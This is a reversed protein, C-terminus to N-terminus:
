PEFDIVAKFEAETIALRGYCVDDRTIDLWHTGEIVKRRRGWGARTAADLWFFFHPGTVRRRAYEESHVRRCTAADPASM